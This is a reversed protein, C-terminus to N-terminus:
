HLKKGIVAYEQHSLFLKNVRDVNRNFISLWRKYKTDLQEPISIEKLKMESPIASIFITEVEKFGALQFLFKLALPHIARTHTLDLIFTNLFAYSCAPNITEVIMFSNPELKRHGIQIFHEFKDPQLHEIFQCAFIGDLSADKISHLYHFADEKIVELRKGRCYSVMEQNSDVGFAGIGNNKLLQLFDGKGCGIDLVRKCNRFYPLYRSQKKSIERSNGRFSEEFKFYEGPSLSEPKELESKITMLYDPRNLQSNLETLGKRQLLIDQNLKNLSEYIKAQTEQVKELDKWINRQNVDINIIEQDLKSFLIDIREVMEMNRIVLVKNIIENFLEDFKKEVDMLKDAVQDDRTDVHNALQNLFRVLYSNFERQNCLLSNTLRHIIPRYIFDKIRRIVNDKKYKKQSIAHASIIDYYNNLYKLYSSNDIHGLDKANKSILNSHNLENRKESLQPLKSKKRWIENSYHRLEEKLELLRNEVYDDPLNIPKSM